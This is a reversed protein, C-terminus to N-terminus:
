PLKKKMYMISGMVIIIILFHIYIIKQGQLYLNNGMRNNSIKKFKLTLNENGNSEHIKQTICHPIKGTKKKM